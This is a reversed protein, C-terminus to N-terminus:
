SDHRAHRRKWDRKFALFDEILELEEKPTQVSSLLDECAEDVLRRLSTELPKEKPPSTVEELSIGLEAYLRKVVELDVRKTTGNLLRNVKVQTMSTKRALEAESIGRSELEEKIRLIIKDM